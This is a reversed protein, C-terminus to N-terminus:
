RRGGLDRSRFCRAEHDNVLGAAQLYAYVITPGVFGFGRRRLDKSLAVSEPSTAPVEHGGQPRRRRPADGVFPWVYADFRGYEKQVRLFARANEVTSEIKRRNRIIGADHLLSRIRAPTFRAVTAPDFGAFVRRYNERRHLITSWSLGAQAGELVLFEFHRRDDHVPVGWERDHYQRLLDDPGTAWGCRETM